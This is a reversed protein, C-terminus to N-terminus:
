DAARHSAAGSRLHMSTISVALKAHLASYSRKMTHLRGSHIPFDSDMLFPSPAVFRLGYGM